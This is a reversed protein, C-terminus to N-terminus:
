WFHDYTKKKKVLVHSIFLFVRAWVMSLYAECNQICCSLFKPINKKQIYHKLTQIVNNQGPILLKVDTLGM